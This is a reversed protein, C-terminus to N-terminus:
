GRNVHKLETRYLFFSFHFFHSKKPGTTGLFGGLYFTVYIPSADSKPPMKECLSSPVEHCKRALSSTTCPHVVSLNITSGELHETAETKSQRSGETELDGNQWMQSTVFKPSEPILDDSRQIRNSLRSSVRTFNKEIGSECWGVDLGWFRLLLFHVSLFPRM